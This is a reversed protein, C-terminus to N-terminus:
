GDYLTPASLLKPLRDAPAPTSPRFYSLHTPVPYNNDLPFALSPKVLYCKLFQSFIATSGKLTRGCCLSGKLSVSFMMPRRPPKLMM